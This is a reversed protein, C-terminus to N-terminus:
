KVQQKLVKYIEKRGADYIIDYDKNQLPNYHIVQVSEGVDQLPSSIKDFVEKPIECILPSIKEDKLTPITADFIYYKGKFEILNFAHIDIKGNIVVGSIKYIAKIGLLHLLNQSLMAREVCMAANKHALDSVKGMEVGLDLDDLTPFFSLRSKINQYDGFYRIIVEQVCFAYDELTKPKYTSIVEKLIEYADKVDGITCSRIDDLGNELYVHDENDFPKDYSSIIGGYCYNNATHNCGIAHLKWVEGTSTKIPYGRM